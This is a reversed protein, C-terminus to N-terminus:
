RTAGWLFAVAVVPVAVVALGILALVDAAGVGIVAGGILAACAACVLGTALGFALGHLNAPVAEFHRRPAPEAPRELVVVIPGSPPVPRHGLEDLRAVLDARHIAQVASM